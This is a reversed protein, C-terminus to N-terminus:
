AHVELEHLLQLAAAANAGQVVVSGSIYCVILAGGQQMRAYEFNSRTRISQYGHQLLWDVLAVTNACDFSCSSRRRLRPLGDSRIPTYTAM